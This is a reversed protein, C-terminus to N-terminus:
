LRTAGWGIIEDTPLNFSRTNLADAIRQAMKSNRIIFCNLCNFYMVKIFFNIRTNTLRTSCYGCAIIDWDNPAVSIAKKIIESFNFEIDNDDELILIPKETKSEAIDIMLFLFSIFNGYTATMDGPKISFKSEGLLEYLNFKLKQSNKFSIMYSINSFFQKGDIADYRNYILKQHSLLLDMHMARDVKAAVNLYVIHFPQGSVSTLIFFM